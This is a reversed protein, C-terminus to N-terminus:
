GEYHDPGTDDAYTNLDMVLKANKDGVTPQITYELVPRKPFLENTIPGSTRFHVWHPLPSKPNEVLGRRELHLM